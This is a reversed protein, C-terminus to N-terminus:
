AKGGLSERSSCLSIKLTTRSDMAEMKLLKMKGLTITRKASNTTTSTHVVKIQTGNAMVGCLALAKTLRLCRPSCRHLKCWLNLYRYQFQSQSSFSLLRRLLKPSRMLTKTATVSSIRSRPHRRKHLKRQSQLLTTIIWRGMSPSEESLKQGLPLKLQCGPPFLGELDQDAM